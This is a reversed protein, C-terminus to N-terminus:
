RYDNMRKDVSIWEDTLRYENIWEYDISMWRM